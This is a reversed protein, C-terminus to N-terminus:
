FGQFVTVFHRGLALSGFAVWGLAVGVIIATLSNLLFAHIIVRRPRVNATHIAKPELSEEEKEKGEEVAGFFAGYALPFMPDTISPLGLLTGLYSLEAMSEVLDVQRPFPPPTLISQAVYVLIYLPLVCINM